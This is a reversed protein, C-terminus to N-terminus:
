SDPKFTEDSAAQMRRWLTARGIGLYRAAEQRNGHCADLAERIQEAVPTSHPRPSRFLEPCDIELAAYGVEEPRRYQLFFM